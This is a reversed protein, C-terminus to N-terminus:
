RWGSDVMRQERIHLSHGLWPRLPTYSSPHTSPPDAPSPHPLLSTYFSLTYSPHTPPTHLFPTYSPHTSPPHTPPHSPPLTYSSAHLLLHTYVQGGAISLPFWSGLRGGCTCIGPGLHRSCSGFSRGPQSWCPYIKAGRVQDCDWFVARHSYVM